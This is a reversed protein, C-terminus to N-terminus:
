TNQHLGFRAGRPDTCTAFRGLGPAEAIEGMVAGGRERIKAVAAEIDTVAIYPVVCPEDGGHLGVRRAGDVFYGAEADRGKLPRWDWGFVAGYFERAAARDDTGIEIWDPPAM